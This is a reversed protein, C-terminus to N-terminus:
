HSIYFLFKGIGKGIGYTVIIILLILILKNYAPNDGKSFLSTIFEKDM